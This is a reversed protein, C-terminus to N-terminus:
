HTCTAMALSTIGTATTFYESYQLTTETLKINEWYVIQSGGSSYSITWTMKTKEANTFQWTVTGTIAGIAYTGTGDANFKMVLSNLQGIDSTSGKKYYYVAGGGGTNVQAFREESMNWSAKALLSANDATATDKKCGIVVLVAILVLGFIQKFNSLLKM